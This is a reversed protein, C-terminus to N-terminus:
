INNFTVETMSGDAGPRIYGTKQCVYYNRDTKCIRNMRFIHRHIKYGTIIVGEPLLDRVSADLRRIVDDRDPCDHHLVIHAALLPIGDKEGMKNVMTSHVEPDKNMRLELDAPYFMTGDPMVCSDSMRGYVFLQGDERIYGVDGSHYWGDKMVTDTLNRDNYYGKMLTTGRALIEGRQGYPLENGNGDVICIDSGPMPIGVSVIPDEDNDAAYGRRCDATLLSFVESMGYGSYLGTPSGCKRLIGNMWKLDEPIVGDGGMIPMTFFSLDPTKGKRIARDMQTFFYVWCRGPTLCIQPKIKMINKTFIKADFRPEVYCTMNRYLPAIFLVFICTSIFPPLGTYCRQGELYNEKLYTNLTQKLMSLVAVNTDMIQKAYGKISTGGSSTIIAPREPDYPAEVEGEYGSWLKLAKAARIFNKNERYIKSMRLCGKARLIQRLPFPMSETAELMVVHSFESNNRFISKVDNEVVDALVAFKAGKAGNTLAELSSTMNLMVPWAGIHNLAMIIYAAEPIFPTYIIVRDDVRVGMGRFTRAWRHVESVFRSRKIKRGFYIMAPYTDGQEKLTRELLKWATIQEVPELSKERAGEPHWRLWPREESPLKSRKDDM